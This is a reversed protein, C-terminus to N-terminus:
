WSCAIKEPPRSFRQDLLAGHQPPVHPAIREGHEYEGVFGWNKMIGCCSM